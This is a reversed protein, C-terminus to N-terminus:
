SWSFIAAGPTSRRDDADSTWDGDCFAKLSLSHDLYAHQFHLGHSLTGKLYQLICKVVVWHSDFPKAMFQCVKNVAFSIEPRTLMAYQLAGVVSRYLTPDSLLDDHIEVRSV